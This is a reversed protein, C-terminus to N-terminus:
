EGNNVKYFEELIIKKFEMLSIGRNTTDIIRDRWNYSKIFNILRKNNTKVWIQKATEEPTYFNGVCSVGFVGICIDPKFNPIKLNRRYDGVLVENPLEYTPRKNLELRNEM